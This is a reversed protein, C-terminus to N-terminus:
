VASDTAPTPATRRRAIGVAALAVLALGYPVYPMAYPHDSLPWLLSVGPGGPEAMDRILHVAVAAGVILVLMRLRRDRVLGAVLGIAILTIVAHTYPRPVGHELITIGFVHPVHDLDILVSGALVALIVPRSPAVCIAFLVLLGTAAHAPEDFVAEVLYPMQVRWIVLDAIAVVALCLLVAYPSSWTLKKMSNVSSTV